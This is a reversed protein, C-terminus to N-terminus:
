KIFKSPRLKQIILYQDPIKEEYQMPARCLCVNKVLASINGVYLYFLSFIFVFSYVIMLIEEEDRGTENYTFFM